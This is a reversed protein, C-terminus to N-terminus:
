ELIKEIDKVIGEVGKEVEKMDKRITKEVGKEEMEVRKKRITDGLDSLVKETEGMLFTADKEIDIKKIDEILINAEKKIRKLLEERDSTM